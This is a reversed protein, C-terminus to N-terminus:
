HGTPWPPVSAAANTTAHWADFFVHKTNCPFIGRLLPIVDGVLTVKSELPSPFSQYTLVARWLIDRDAAVPMSTLHGQRANIGGGPWCSLWARNTEEVGTIKKSDIKARWFAGAGGANTVAFGWMPLREEKGLNNTYSYFEGTPGVARISVKARPETAVLVVVMVVALLVIALLFFAIRKM